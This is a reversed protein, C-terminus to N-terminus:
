NIAEDKSCVVDLWKKEVASVICSVCEWTKGNKFFNLNVNACKDHYWNCCKNCMIGKNVRKDCIKCKSTSSVNVTESRELSVDVHVAM